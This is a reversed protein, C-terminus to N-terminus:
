GAVAKDGSYVAEVGRDKGEQLVWSGRVGFKLLEETLSLNAGSFLLFRM